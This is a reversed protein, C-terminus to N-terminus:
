LVHSNNRIMIKYLPVGTFGNCNWWSRFKVDQFWSKFSLWGFTDIVLKRQAFDETSHVKALHGPVSCVSCLIQQKLVWCDDEWHSTELCRPCWSESVQCQATDGCTWHDHGSQYCQWCYKQTSKNQTQEQSYSHRRPHTIIPTNPKKTDVITLLANNFDEVEEQETDSLHCVQGKRLNSPDGYIDECDTDPYVTVDSEYGDKTMDSEYGDRTIDSEYGNQIITTLTPTSCNSSVDTMLEENDEGSDCDDTYSESDDTEEDKEDQANNSINDNHKNTSKNDDHETIDNNELNDVLDGTPRSTDIYM